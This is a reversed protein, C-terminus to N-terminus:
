LDANRGLHELSERELSVAEEGVGRAVFQKICDHTQGTNLKHRSDERVSTLSM